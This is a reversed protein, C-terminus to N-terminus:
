HTHRCVIAIDIFVIVDTIDVYMMGQIVTRGAISTISDREVNLVVTIRERYISTVVVYTM